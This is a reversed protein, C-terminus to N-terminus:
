VRGMNGDRMGEWESKLIAWCAVDVLGRHNRSGQRRVGEIRMGIKQMVRGSKPNDVDHKACLRNVGVAGFLYDRVAAAAEPVYGMGWWRVGICWGLEAEDIAEDLRVVSVSGIVEGTQRIQLAWTYEEARSYNEEWQALLRRTHDESAHTPWTLFETVAPDSAWNCFMDHADETTFRRLILRETELRQTGRHQM